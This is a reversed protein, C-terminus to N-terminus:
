FRSILISKLWLQRLRFDLSLFRTNHSDYSTFRIYYRHSSIWCTVVNFYSTCICVVTVFSNLSGYCPRELCLELANDLAVKESLPNKKKARWNNWFHLIFNRFSMEGSEMSYLAERECAVIAELLTEMCQVQWSKRGTQHWRDVKRKLGPIYLCGKLGAVGM